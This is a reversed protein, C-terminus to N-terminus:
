LSAARASSSARSVPCGTTFLAFIRHVRSSIWSLYRPGGGNRHQSCAVNETSTSDKRERRLINHSRFLKPPHSQPKRLSKLTRVHLMRIKPHAPPLQKRSQSIRVLCPSHNLQGRLLLLLKHPRLRFHKHGHFASPSAAASSAYPQPPGSLLHQLRSHRRSPTIRRRPLQRPLKLRPQLSPARPADCLKGRVRHM